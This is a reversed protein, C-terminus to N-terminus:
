QYRTNVLKLEFDTPICTQVQDCQGIHGLSSWFCFFHISGFSEYRLVGDDEDFEM